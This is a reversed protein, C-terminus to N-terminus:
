YFLIQHSDLLTYVYQNSVIFSQLSSKTMLSTLSHRENGKGKGLILSPVCLAHTTM